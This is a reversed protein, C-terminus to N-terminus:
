NCPRVSPLPKAHDKEEKLEVEVVKEQLQVTNGGGQGTLDEDDRGNEQREGAQDAALLLQTDSSRKSGSDTCEENDYAANYPQLKALFHNIVSQLGM